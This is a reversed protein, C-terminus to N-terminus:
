KLIEMFFWAIMLAEVALKLFTGGLFGVLTGLGARLAGGLSNKRLLEGAVAGIFPGYILGFPGGTVAGAIGGLISGWVSYKSGGYMKVGLVGAAYDIAFILAVALGQGLFFSWGLGQFKTFLGYAFMGLWILPAGPLAPLVTGLVGLAMLIVAVFLGAYSM